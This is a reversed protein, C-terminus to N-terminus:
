LISWSNLMLHNEKSRIEFSKNLCSIAFFNESKRWLAFLLYNFSDSKM